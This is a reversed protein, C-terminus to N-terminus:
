LPYHKSRTLIFSFVTFYRWITKVPFSYQVIMQVIPSSFKVYIRILHTHASGLNSIFFFFFFWLHLALLLKDIKCEHCRLHSFHFCFAKLYLKRFIGLFILNIGIDFRFGLFLCSPFYQCTGPIHPLTVGVLFRNHPSHCFTHFGM